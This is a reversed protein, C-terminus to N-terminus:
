QTGTKKGEIEIKMEVPADDEDYVQSVNMAFTRFWRLRKEAPWAEGQAPIKQLLAILLPDLDFGVSGGNGGGSGGCEKLPANSSKLAQTSTM